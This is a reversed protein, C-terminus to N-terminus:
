CTLSRAGEDYGALPTDDSRAIRMARYVDVRETDTCHGVFQKLSWKGEAYRFSTIQDRLVELVNADPVKSVYAEDYLAYNSPDHRVRAFSFVLLRLKM